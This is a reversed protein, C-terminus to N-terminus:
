KSRPKATTARVVLETALVHRVDRTEHSDLM